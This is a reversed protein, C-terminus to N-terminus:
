IKRISHNNIDWFFDEETMFDDKSYIGPEFEDPSYGSNLQRVKTFRHYKASERADALNDTIEVEPVGNEEYFVLYAGSTNALDRIWEEHEDMYPDHIAIRSIIKFYDM